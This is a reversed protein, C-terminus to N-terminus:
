NPLYESFTKDTYFILIREVERAADSALLKTEVKKSDAIRPLNNPQNQRNLDLGKARENLRPKSPENHPTQTGIKTDPSDLGLFYDLTYTPDWKIIKVIIDLSPKNRGALIHSISARNVGIDDAFKSPTMNNEEIIQKFKLNTVDM